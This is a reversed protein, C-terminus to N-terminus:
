FLMVDGETAGDDENEVTEFSIDASVDAAFRITVRHGGALFTFPSQLPLKMSVMELKQGRIVSPTSLNFTVGSSRLGNKIRGLIQNAIEGMWDPLDDATVPMGMAKNPHCMELFGETASIGMNGKMQEGSFGIVSVLTENEENLTQGEYRFDHINNENAFGKFAEKIVEILPNPFDM